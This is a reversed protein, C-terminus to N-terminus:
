DGEIVVWSRVEFDIPAWGQLGAPAGVESRYPTLPYNKITKDRLALVGASLNRVSEFEAEWVQGASCIATSIRNVSEWKM